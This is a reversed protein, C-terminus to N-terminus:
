RNFGYMRSKGGNKKGYRWKRQRIIIELLIDLLYISQNSKVFQKHIYKGQSKQRWRPVSILLQRFIVLAVFTKRRCLRIRRCLSLVHCDTAGNRSFWGSVKAKRSKWNERWFNNDSSQIQKPWPVISYTLWKSSKM